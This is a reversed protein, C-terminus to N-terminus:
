LRNEFISLEDNLFRYKETRTGKLKPAPIGENWITDSSLVRAEDWLNLNIFHKITDSGGEIILSQINLEYLHKLIAPIIEQSFDLQIFKLNEEDSNEISNFIITPQNRDFVHFNRPIALNKDIVIRLPNNGDWLRSNLQPNDILATNKGVLISQEETRWKHVLQKSYNNTIWKQIDDRGIYGDETQAWKLIIYPRKKEHFTIFRRNLKLCENELVGLTVDVGNKLLRLYGEGNVKAFPDLTGIVVKPIEKEIILNACPPTKGFHSCPELTVYITSEKLLEKNKVSNIANVEAHPGGYVSTFGEGIIKNNHVIISGVFPNPYTTGLGNTAIQICRSMFMEDITQQKM